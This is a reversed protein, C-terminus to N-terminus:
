SAKIAQRALVNRYQVPLNTSLRSIHQELQASLYSHIHKDMEFNDLLFRFIANTEGNELDIVLEFADAFNNVEELAKEASFLYGVNLLKHTQRDVMKKLKRKSLRKKFKILWEIHDTEDQAFERWFQAVEPQDCFKIELGLYFKEAAKEAQIAEDIAEEVTIGMAARNQLHFTLIRDPLLLYALVSMNQRIILPQQKLVWGSM